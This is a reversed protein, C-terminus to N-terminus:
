STTFPTTWRKRCCGRSSIRRGARSRIRSFPLIASRPRDTPALSGLVLHQGYQTVEGHAGAEVNPRGQQLPDDCLYRIRDVPLSLFLAAVGQPMMLCALSRKPAARLDVLRGAAEALANVLHRIEGPFVEVKAQGRRVVLRDRKVEVALDDRM